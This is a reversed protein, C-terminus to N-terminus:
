FSEPLFFQLSLYHFLQSTAFIPPVNIPSVVPLENKQRINKVIYRVIVWRQFSSVPFKKFYLHNLILNESIIHVNFSINNLIAESSYGNQEFNFM